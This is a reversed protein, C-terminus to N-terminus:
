PSQVEIPPAGTSRVIEIQGDRIAAAVALADSSEVAIVVSFAASSGLSARDVLNVTLVEADVIVYTAGAEGVQILDIRDGAVIAGGVAHAPDIPVSMARRGAGSAPDIFAARSALEGPLLTRAAVKGSLEGVQEWILLAGLVQPSVDVEVAQFDAPTVTAGTAVETAMAVVAVTEDYSRLVVLNVAFALVAALVMLLHAASLRSFPSRRRLPM